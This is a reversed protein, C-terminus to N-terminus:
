DRSSRQSYTFSRFEYNSNLKCFYVDKFNCNYVPLFSRNKINYVGQLGKFAKQCHQKYVFTNVKISYMYM